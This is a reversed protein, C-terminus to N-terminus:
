REDEDARSFAASPRFVLWTDVAIVNMWAFSALFGYALFVAGTTCADSDGSLFVGIMLMLFVILLAISLQLHLKGQRKQFSTIIPQLMIRIILSILSIVYCILSIIGLAKEVNRPDEDPVNVDTECVIVKEEFLRFQGSVYTKGSSDITVSDKGISTENKEYAM